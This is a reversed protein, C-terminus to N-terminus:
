GHILDPFDTHDPHDPHNPHDPHDPRDPHDPHDPYQHFVIINKLSSKYSQVKKVVKIPISLLWSLIKCAVEFELTSVFSRM